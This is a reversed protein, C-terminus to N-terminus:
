TEDSDAPLLVTKRIYKQPSLGTQKKFLEYFVSRSKFGSEMYLIDSTIDGKQEEILTLSYSIRYNNVFTYFNTHLREHIFRSLYTTNIGIAAAVDSLSLESNLYPKQEEFYSILKLEMQHQRKQKISSILNKEPDENYEDAVYRVEEITPLPEQQFGIVFIGTISLFSTINFIVKLPISQYLTTLLAMLALVVFCGISFSFRWLIIQGRYSYNQLVYQRYNIYDYIARSIVSCGFLVVCGGGVLEVIIAPQRINKVADFINLSSSGAVKDAILLLLLFGLAAIIHSVFYKKKIKQPNILATFYFLMLVEGIILSFLTTTRLTEYKNSVFYWDYTFCLLRGSGLGLMLCALLTQALTKDKKLFLALAYCYSCMIPVICSALGWDSNYYNGLAM